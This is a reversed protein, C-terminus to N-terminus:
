MEVHFLAIDGVDMQRRTIPCFVGGTRLWDRLAVHERRVESRQLNGQSTATERAFLSGRLVVERGGATM